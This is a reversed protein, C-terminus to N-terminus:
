PATVTIDFPRSTFDAHNGHRLEFQVTTTGAQLGRIRGDYAGAAQFAAVSPNAFVVALSFDAEGSLDIVDGDEALFRVQLLGTEAGVGVSPLNNVVVTAGQSEAVVVGSLTVRVGAADEHHESRVPNDCVALLAAISLAAVARRSPTLLRFQM